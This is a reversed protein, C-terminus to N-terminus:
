SLGGTNPVTDPLYEGVAGETLLGGADETIGLKDTVLAGADAIGGAINEFIQYAYRRLVSTDPRDVLYEKDIYAPNTEPDEPLSPDFNPNNKRETQVRVPVGMVTKERGTRNYVDQMEKERAFQDMKQQESLQYEDFPHVGPPVDSYKEKISGYLDDASRIGETQRTTLVPEAEAAQRRNEELGKMLPDEGSLVETETLAPKDNEWWKDTDANQRSVVPDNEWWNAM